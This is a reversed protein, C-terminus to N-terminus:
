MGMIMLLGATTIAAMLNMIIIAFWLIVIILVM